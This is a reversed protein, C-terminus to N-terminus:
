MHFYISKTLPLFGLLVSINIYYYAINWLGLIFRKAIENTLTLTRWDRVFPDFYYIKSDASDVNMESDSSTSSMTLLFLFRNVTSDWRFVQPAFDSSCEHFISSRVPVSGNTRSKIDCSVSEGSEGHATAFWQFSPKSPASFNM